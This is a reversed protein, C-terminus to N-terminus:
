YGEVGPALVSTGALRPHRVSAGLRLGDEVHQLQKCLRPDLTLASCSFSLAWSPSCIGLVM